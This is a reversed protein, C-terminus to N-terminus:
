NGTSRYRRVGARWGAGALLALALAALPSAFRLADPLGLPDPRGLVYLAPYWNVFALPVVWTLIRLAERGYIALPYQTLVNGGYTFASIVEAADTVVFLVAACLVRLAGFIVAGSIVMTVVMAVRAPSWDVDVLPLAVGLVVAGQLVVALRRPSFDEAAVQVLTGAPRVLMADFTGKRIRYGLLDVNGLALDALGFALYSTGYLFLVERLGFSALEDIQSFLVAVMALDMLTILAQSVTMLILSGPYQWAARCWMRVLLGYARLSEVM